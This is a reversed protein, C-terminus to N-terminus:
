DGKQRQLSNKIINILITPVLVLYFYNRMVLLVTDRFTLLSIYTAIAIFASKLIIKDKDNEKNQLIKSYFIGIALMAFIGFKGFNYYSEALITYGPGYDLDMNRMLWEPLAAKDSFSFGGFVVSPIIAMVSAFYTYGYSYNQIQPILNITHYTSYINGGMEEILSIIQSNDNNKKSAEIFGELNKNDSDRFIAVTNFTTILLYGVVCLVCITKWNIKKIQSTYLWFFSILLVLAKGRGGALFSLLLNLIIIIMNCRLILKNNKCAVTLLIIGPVFFMKLNSIINDLGSTSTNTYISSYGVNFSTNVDNILDKFFQPMGIIIMLISVIIVAKKLYKNEICEYSLKDISEKKMWIIAGLFLFTYGWITFLITKKLNISEFTDIFLQNNYEPVITRIIIEGFWCIFSIILFFFMPTNIRKFKIYWISILCILIFISICGYVRILDNDIDFGYLYISVILNIIIIFLSIYSYKNWNRM